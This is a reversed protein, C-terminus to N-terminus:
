LADRQYLTPFMKGSLDDGNQYGNAEFIAREAQAWDGRYEIKSGEKAMRLTYRHSDNKPISQSLSGHLTRIDFFVCDGLELDWQLFEYDDKNQLIDPTIDYTKGNVIGASGDNPHGEQFRTRVFLKDWLHSGKIWAIGEEKNVPELPLWLVCMSGDFDFYSIDHHFPAGSRSGAERFFWNDMVLNIQNADLLESGMQAMPSNYLFDKFEDYLDWSWFDEYYGPADDDKTHREFRPSPNNIDKSIGERLTEIWKRDFKGKILVAGDNNFQDILDTSLINVM